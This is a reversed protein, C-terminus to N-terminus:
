HVRIELAAQEEEFLGAIFHGISFQALGQRGLRLIRISVSQEPNAEGLAFLEFFGRLFGLLRNVQGGIKGKGMVSQGGDEVVAVSIFLRQSSDVFSQAQVRGLRIIKREQGGNM